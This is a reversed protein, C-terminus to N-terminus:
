LKHSIKFILSIHGLQIDDGDELYIEDDQSLKNGNLYTGNKSNNERIVFCRKDTMNKFSDIICHTRSVSRDDTDLAIDPYKNSSKRGIVQIGDKLQYKYKQRESELILFAVGPNASHDNFILTSRDEHNENPMTFSVKEKCAKNQCQFLIKKGALSASFEVKNEHHCHKCHIKIVSM